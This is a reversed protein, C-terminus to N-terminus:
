CFKIKLNKMLENINKGALEGTVVNAENPIKNSKTAAMVSTSSIAACTLFVSLVKILKKKM